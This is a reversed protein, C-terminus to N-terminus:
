LIKYKLKYRIGSKCKFCMNDVNVMEDCDICLCLYGCYLYIVVFYVVFSKRCCMCVSDVVKVNCEINFLLNRDMKIIELMKNCIGVFDIVCRNYCWVM